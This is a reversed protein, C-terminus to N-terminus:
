RDAGTAGAVASGISHLADPLSTGAGHLYSATETVGARGSAGSAWESGGSGAAKETAPDMVSAAVAGSRQGFGGGKGDDSTSAAANGEAAAAIGGAADAAGDAPAAAAAAARALLVMATLHAGASHGM